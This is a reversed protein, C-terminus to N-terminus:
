IWLNVNDLRSQRVHFQTDNWFRRNQDYLNWYVLFTAKLYEIAKLSQKLVASSFRLLLYNVMQKSRERAM